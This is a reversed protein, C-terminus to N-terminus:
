GKQAQHLTREEVEVEVVVAMCTRRVEERM